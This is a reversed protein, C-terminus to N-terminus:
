GVGEIDQGQVWATERTMLGATWPPVCHQETCLWAHACQAETPRLRVESQSFPLQLLM